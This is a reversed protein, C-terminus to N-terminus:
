NLHQGFVTRWGIEMSSFRHWLPMSHFYHKQGTPLSHKLSDPIGELREYAM